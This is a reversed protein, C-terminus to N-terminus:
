EEVAERRRRPRVAGSAQTQLSRLEDRRIRELETCRSCLAYSVRKGDRMVQLIDDSCAVRWSHMGESPIKEPDLVWRVGRKAMDEADKQSVRLLAGGCRDLAPFADLNCEKPGDGFTALFSAVEGAQVRKGSM